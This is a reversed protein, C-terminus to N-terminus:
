GNLLRQLVEAAGDRLAGILNGWWRAPWREVRPWLRREPKGNAGTHHDAAGKRNTGVIVTGATSVDFIQNEHGSPGDVGPSLSNLLQGTDRLIEHPADAYEGFITKGGEEKITLWAYAAAHGKEDPGPPGHMKGMIGRLANAYIQKWRENQKKTLLPRGPRGEAKAAARKAALGPYRRGYAVTRPSLKPWRDGAEDAGGSAKAVFSNKILSLAEVGTRLQLGRVLGTTDAAHGNLLLPLTRITEQLQQRTMRVHVVNQAM